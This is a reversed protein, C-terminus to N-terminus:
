KSQKVHSFSCRDYRGENVDCTDNFLGKLYFDWRVNEDEKWCITLKGAIPTDITAPLQCSDSIFVELEIKKKPSLEFKKPSVDFIDNNCSCAFESRMNFLNHFKIIRTEGMKLVYPGSPKAPLGVMMVPFLFDGADPSTVHIEAQKTGLNIPKFAVELNYSSLADVEFRKKAKLDSDNIKVKFKSKFRAGNEIFLLNKQETGIPSEFFVCPQPKAPFSSLIFVYWFEGLKSNRLRVNVQKNECVVLPSYQLIIKTSANKELETNALAIDTSEQCDLIISQTEDTPNLLELEQFITTRVQSTLYYTGLPGKTSVKVMTTFWIFEKTKPNTFTLEFEFETEKSIYVTFPYMRSSNAAIDIYASGTFSYPPCDIAKVHASVSFRQHENLWNVIQFYKTEQTKTDICWTTRSETNPELAEGKLGHVICTGNPFQIYLKGEHYPIFDSTMTLPEYKVTCFSSSKGPIIVAEDVSFYEGCIVPYVIITDVSQNEVSINEYTTQRVPTTFLTWKNPEPTNVCEVYVRLPLAKYNEFNCIIEDNFKYGPTMCQFSVKCVIKSGPFCSGEQPYVKLNSNMRRCDWKFFHGTDGKNVIVVQQSVKCGKVVTAYNIVSIDFYINTHLSSCVLDFLPNLDDMTKIMVQSSITEKVTPSYTISIIKTEKPKMVFADTPEIKLSKNEELILLLQIPVVSFNVIQRTKTQSTGVLVDDFKVVTGSPNAPGVAMSIGEGLIEIQVSYVGNILFDIHDVYRYAERPLFDILIDQSSRPPVLHEFLSVKLHNSDQTIKELLLQEQSKNYFKLITKNVRLDCQQALCPGFNFKKFSFDFLPKTAIGNLVIEYEAGQDTKLSIHFDTIAVTNMPLVTHILKTKAHAGLFTQSDFTIVLSLEKAKDRDYDWNFNLMKNSYNAMLFEVHYPVKLPIRGIDFVNTKTPHLKVQSDNSMYVIACELDFCKSEVYFNIPDKCSSVKIKVAQKLEGITSLKFSIRFNLKSRGHVTGEMPCIHIKQSQSGCALSKEDVAFTITYEEENILTGDGYREIDIPGPTLKLVAPSFYINPQKSRGIFLIPQSISFRPIELLWLSHYTGYERPIFNFPIQMFWFPALEGSQTSCSFLIKSDDDGYIKKWFFNYSFKSPNMLTIKKIFTKGVGKAEIEIARTSEPYTELGHVYSEKHLIHCISPTGSGSLNVIGMKVPEENWMFYKANCILTTSYDYVFHPTFKIQVTVYNNPTIVGNQPSLSFPNDGLVVDYPTYRKAQNSSVILAKSSENQVSIMSQSNDVSDSILLDLGSVDETLYELNFIEQNEKYGKNEYIESNEKCVNIDNLDEITVFNKKELTKPMNVRKVGQVVINSQVSISPFLKRYQQLYEIGEDGFSCQWELLPDSPEQKVDGFQLNFEIPVLGTNKLLLIAYSSELMLTSPFKIETTSSTMKISSCETTVFLTISFDKDKDVVSFQPETEKPSEFSFQKLHDFSINSSEQALFEFLKPDRTWNGIGVNSHYVIPRYKLLLLEENVGEESGLFVVFMDLYSNGDIHALTPIFRFNPHTPAVLRLIESKNNRLRIKRTKALGLLCPDFTLDYTHTVNKTKEEASHDVITFLPINEITLAKQIGRGKILLELKEYPNHITHLLMHCIDEQEKLPIYEVIMDVIEGVPLTFVIPVGLQKDPEAPHKLWQNSHKSIRLNFKGSNVLFELMIKAVVNGVNKFSINSGVGTGIIAGGLDLIPQDDNIYETFVVKPIEGHGQLYINCEMDKLPPTLNMILNLVADSSDVTKPTFKITLTQITSPEITIIKHTSDNEFSFNNECSNYLNGRLRIPILGVNELDILIEQSFGVVTHYFDITLDEKKFVAFPTGYSKLLDLANRDTAIHLHKFMTRESTSIKPVCGEGLFKVPTVRNMHEASDVQLEFIETISGEEYPHFIIEVQAIEGPQLKGMYNSIEFNGLNCDLSNLSLDLSPDGMGLGKSPTRSQQHSYANKKKLSKKDHKHDVTTWNILSNNENISAILKNLQLSGTQWSETEQQIKQSKFIYEFPFAGVNSITLTYKKKTYMETPGFNYESFPSVVYKSYGVELSAYVPLEAVIHDSDKFLIQVFLVCIKNLTLAVTSCAVVNIDVPKRPHLNGHSCGLKLVKEPEFLGRKTAAAFRLKFRVSSKGLNIISFQSEKEKGVWISGFDLCQPEKNNSVIDILIDCSSLYMTLQLKGLMKNKKKYRYISFVAYAKKTEEILPSYHFTITDKESPKLDGEFPFWKMQNVNNCSELEWSIPLKSKNKILIQESRTDHILVNEFSLISPTFEVDLKIGEGVLKISTIAPNDKISIILDDEFITVQTPCAYVKLYGYGKPEIQLSTPVLIFPSDLLAFMSFSVSMPLDSANNIKFTAPNLYPSQVCNDTNVFTCGFNFQKLDSEYVPGTKSYVNSTKCVNKFIKTVDENITPIDCIAHCNLVLKSLPWSDVMFEFKEKYHKCDKPQFTIKLQTMEGPKLFIRARGSDFNCQSLDHEFRTSTQYIQSKYFYLDNNVDCVSFPAEEEKRSQLPSPQICFYTTVKPDEVKESSKLDLLTTFKKNSALAMCLMELNYSDDQSPHTIIWTYVNKESEQTDSTQINIPEFYVSKRKDKKSKKVSSVPTVFSLEKSPLIDLLEYVETLQVNFEEFDHAITSYTNITLNEQEDQEKISHKSMSLIKAEDLAKSKSTMPTKKLGLKCQSKAKISFTTMRKRKKESSNSVSKEKEQNCLIGHCQMFRSTLEKLYNQADETSLQKFEEGDMMMIENFRVNAHIYTAQEKIKLEEENKKKTYEKASEVTNHLILFHIRKMEEGIKICIKTGTLLDKVFLGVIQEIILGKFPVMKRIRNKILKTLLETPISLFTSDHLNRSTLSLSQSFLINENDKKVSSSPTSSKRSNKLKTQLKGKKFLDVGLSMQANTSNDKSLVEVKIQMIELKQWEPLSHYADTEFDPTNLTSPLTDSHKSLYTMYASNIIARVEIAEPSNSLAIEEIILQDLSMATMGLKKAMKNVIYVHDTKPFGIVVVISSNKSHDVLAKRSTLTKILDETPLSPNEELASLYDNVIQDNDIEGFMEENLIYFFEKAKTILMEYLTLFDQSMSSKYIESPVYLEDTKYYRLLSNIVKNEFQFQKDITPSFVEIPFPCPNTLTVTKELISQFPVVRGFDLDTIDIHVRPEIVKGKLKIAFYDSNWDVIFNIEGKYNGQHNPEFAIEIVTLSKPPSEMSKCDVIWFPNGVAKTIISKTEKRYVKKIEAIWHAPAAGENIINVKMIRKQGCKVIGFDVIEPLVLYPISIISKVTIPIIPGCKIKLEVIVELPISYNKVLKSLRRSKPLLLVHMDREEGAELTHFNCVIKFGLRRVAYKDQLIIISFTVPIKGCNKLTVTHRSGVDMLTYDLDLIYGLTVFRPLHFTKSKERAHDVVWSPFSIAYLESLAKHNAKDLDELSPVDDFSVIEWNMLEPSTLCISKMNSLLSEEESRENELCEKVLKDIAMYKYELPLGVIEEPSLDVTLEVSTATGIIKVNFEFTECVIIRLEHSIVTPVAPFVNITIEAKKGPDIVGQLPFFFCKGPNCCIMYKQVETEFCLDYSIWFDEKNTMVIKGEWIECFPKYGFDFVESVELNIKDRCGGAIEIIDKYGNMRISSALGSIDLPEQPLFYVDFVHSENPPLFGFTPHITILNTASSSPPESPMFSYFTAHSTKFKSIFPYLVTTILRQKTLLPDSDDEFLIEAKKSHKLAANKQPPKDKSKALLEDSSVFGLKISVQDLTSSVISKLNKSSSIYPFIDVTEWLWSFYVPFSCNNFVELSFKNERGPSVCGFDIIRNKIELNAFTISVQISVPVILNFTKDRIIMKTNLVQSCNLLKKNPCCVIKLQYIEGEEVPVNLENVKAGSESLIKFHPDNLTCNVSSVLNTYTGINIVKEYINKDLNFQSFSLDFSISRPNVILDMDFVNVKFTVPFLLVKKGQMSLITYVFFQEETTRAVESYVTVKIVEKQGPKLDVQNPRIKFASKLMKIPVKSDTIFSLNYEKIGINKITLPLVQKYCKFINGMDWCPTIKPDFIITNSISSFGSLMVEIHKTEHTFEFVMKYNFKGIDFLLPTIVVMIKENVRIIGTSPKISWFNPHEIHVTFGLDVYGPNTLYLNKSLGIESDISKWKLWKPEISVYPATSVFPMTCICKIEDQGLIQTVIEVNGNGLSEAILTLTVQKSEFGELMHYGSPDLQTTGKGKTFHVDLSFYIETDLPNTIEFTYMQETFMLFTRLNFQDPYATVFTAKIYYKLKIEHIIYDKDNGYIYLSNESDTFNNAIISVKIESCELPALTKEEPEIYFQKVNEPVDVISNGNIFAERTIAKNQGDNEVIFKCSVPFDGKNVVNVFKSKQVGFSVTGFDIESELFKVDELKVDGIILCKLIKKSEVIEFFIDGLIRELKDFKISITFINVDGPMLLLSQPTCQVNYDSEKFIITGPVIGYNGVSLEYDHKQAVYVESLELVHSVLEIDPGIGDGELSIHFLEMLGDVQLHAITRFEKIETPHFILTCMFVSHPGIKGTLPSIDFNKDKFLYSEQGAFTVEDSFLRKTVIKYDDTVARKEQEVLLDAYIETLKKTNITEILRSPHMKWVFNVTFNSNNEIKLKRCSKLQLNVGGFHVTSDEINIKCLCTQATLKVTLVEGGEFYIYLKRSCPGLESSVFHINITFLKGPDLSIKPPEVTFPLEAVLRGIIKVSSINQITINKTEKGGVPSPHLVIEDPCKLLPREALALIPVKFVRDKDVFKVVHQYDVHEKPLFTVLFPLPHNPMLHKMQLIPANSTVQFADSTPSHMKVERPKQTVNTLSFKLNYCHGPEWSQFVLTPPVVSYEPPIDFESSLSQNKLTKILVFNRENSTMSMEKLYKSPSIEYFEGQKRNAFYHLLYETNFRIMSFEEVMYPNCSKRSTSAQLKNTSQMSDEQAM